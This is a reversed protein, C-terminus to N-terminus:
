RSEIEAELRTVLTKFSEISGYQWQYYQARYSLTSKLLTLYKKDTTLASYELPVMGEFYGCQAYVAEFRSALEPIMVNQYYDSNREDLKQIYELNYEYANTLANKTTDNSIFDLGFNKANEYAHLKTLMVWRNHAMAFNFTLSDQYPLKNEIQNILAKIARISGENAKLQYQNSDINEKTSQLLETLLRLEVKDNKQAENWNNISLAILIGIVVLAIEGIAYLLYKRTSSSEILSKRIKRLFALM